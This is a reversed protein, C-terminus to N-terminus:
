NKVLKKLKNIVLDYLEGEEYVDVRRSEDSHEPKMRWETVSFTFDNYIKCRAILGCYEKFRFEKFEFKLNKLELETM